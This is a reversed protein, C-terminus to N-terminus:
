KSTSMMMEMTMSTHIHTLNDLLSAQTKEMLNHSAAEPVAKLMATEVVTETATTVDSLFGSM